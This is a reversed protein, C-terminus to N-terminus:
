TLVQWYYAFFSVIEGTIGNIGYTWNDPSQAHKARLATLQRITSGGCNQILTRPIVELARSIANYPWQRVGEISKSQENM